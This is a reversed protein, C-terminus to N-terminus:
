APVGKSLTTPDFVALDEPTDVDWGLEENAVVRVPLGLRKAEMRHAKASGPGYAFTFASRTPVCMVNTGDGRRDPVITIARKTTAKAAVVTQNDLGNSSKGVWALDAVWTLDTALPLDAHAIVVRDYGQNGLFTMGDAVAQNLGRSTRWIVGAGRETAFGAVLPDDCVVWVSSNRAASIVAAAMTRALQARRTSSIATALRGKALDFSKIPILVTPEASAGGWPLYSNTTTSTARIPM